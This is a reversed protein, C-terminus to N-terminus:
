SGGGILNNMEFIPKLIAVVIASVVLGMLLILGPELLGVLTAMKTQVQKEILDASHDLMPELEGSKEGSACLRVLLKPFQQTEKLAGSLSAGERVRATVDVLANKIPLLNVVQTSLRLAELVPVSASVSIAMTRAFRAAQAGQLLTGVIPLRLLFAHWRTKFAAGRLALVFAIAALLLCLLLWGGYTQLFTSIWLLARTMWPLAQNSNAFVSAIQPVVGVLLASVIGIAVVCLLAPYILALLLKQTLGVNNECYDALRTLVIELHGSQEGARISACYLADFTQPFESLAQALPAGELVRGRVALLMRKAREGESQEALTQLVEDLPLGARMLVAFQRTLIALQAGSLGRQFLRTTADTQSQPKERVEQVDIPTLGRERLASRVSKPSDGQLVGRQTKGGADLAQYEFAAL